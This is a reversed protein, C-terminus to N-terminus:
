VRLLRRQLGKARIIAKRRKVKRKEEKQRRNRLKADTITKSLQLNRTFRRIMSEVNEGDRRIVKTLASV